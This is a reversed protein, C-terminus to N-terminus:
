TKDGRVVSFMHADHEEGQLLLRSRAVGEHVAGIKQAVRVSAPNATSVVIELRRLGARELGFRALLRAARSALGRGTHDSRVWYGLNAILNLPDYHNLGCTGIVDSGDDVFMAFRYLDGPNGAIWDAADEVSYDPTAWPMWPALEVLSASVANAVAETDAPMPPRLTLDGDRLISPDVPMSLTQVLSQDEASDVILSM